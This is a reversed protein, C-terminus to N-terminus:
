PLIPGAKIGVLAGPAHAVYDSNHDILASVGFVFRLRINCLIAIVLYIVSGSYEVKYPAKAGAGGAIHPSVRGRLAGM